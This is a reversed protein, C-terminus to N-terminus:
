EQRWYGPGPPTPFDGQAVLTGDAALGLPLQPLARAAPGYRPKALDYVDFVSQHCPCLLEGAGQAFLGVPCGAHTCIKSYGVIGDVTWAMRDPPFRLEAPPVRLLLVGADAAETAGEPFVTLATGLELDGPRVRTGDHRVVAVGAAWPTHKLAVQPQVRRQPYLSRLPFLAALGLVGLAFTLARRPFPASVIAGDAAGLDQALVDQEHRPPTMSERKEVYPGQPLLPVWAAFGYALGAFALALAGGLWAVPGDVVYGWAFGVGGAAAVLFAAAARRQPGKPLNRRRPAHPTTLRTV